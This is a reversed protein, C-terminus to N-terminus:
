SSLKKPHERYNATAGTKQQAQTNNRPKLLDLERRVKEKIEAFHAVESAKSDVIRKDLERRLSHRIPDVVGAGIQKGRYQEM